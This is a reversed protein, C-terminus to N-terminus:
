STEICYQFTVFGERNGCSNKKDPEKELMEHQLLIIVEPLEPLSGGKIASFAQRLENESPMQM